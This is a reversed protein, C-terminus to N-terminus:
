KPEALASMQASFAIGKCDIMFSYTKDSKNFGFQSLTCQKEPDTISCTNNNDACIVQDMTGSMHDSKDSLLGESFLGNVAADFNWNFSYFPGSLHNSAISYKHNVFKNWWFFDSGLERVSKALEIKNEDQMLLNRIVMRVQISSSLGSKVAVYYPAEHVVLIAQQAPSLRSLIDPDTYVTSGQRVAAQFLQCGEPITYAPDSDSINKLNGELWTQVPGITEMAKYFPGALESQNIRASLFDIMEQYTFKSIDILKPNGGGVTPLTAQYYDLTVTEKSRCMVAQGGHSEAGAYANLSSMLIVVSM